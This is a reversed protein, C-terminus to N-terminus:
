LYARMTRQNFWNLIASTMLSMLLYVAMTMAIVEVAQGTQLLVTGAFVSVLDPYAIAAALSSNKTLNLYQSILPPIILKLAQPMIIFRLRQWSNLGLAKGSEIQERPVAAIGARVIECIFAASYLSLALALALFEPILVWGGELNFGQLHPLSLALGNEWQLKPFYLGRNNLFVFKGLVLSEKPAPLPRLVAFYWFFLQLLLPINRIAEVYFTSFASIFSRRSSRMVGLAFGLVTAFFFGVLSVALTNALGVWFVRGYSDTPQYPILSAAIDFGAEDQLFDFGSAIGLKQLNSIANSLFYAVGSLLVCLFLIQIILSRPNSFFHKWTSRVM